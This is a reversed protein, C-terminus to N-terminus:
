QNTTSVAVACSVVLVQQYRPRRTEPDPFPYPGTNTFVGHIGSPLTGYRLLFRVDNAMAEARENTLAWCQVAVLPLDVFDRDAGSARGVTVFEDPMDAPVDTSARYGLSTLWSVMAETVSYAAMTM